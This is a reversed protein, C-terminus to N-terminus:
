SPLHVDWIWPSIFIFNFLMKVLLSGHFGLTYLCSWHGRAFTCSLVALPFSSLNHQIHILHHFQEWHVMVRTGLGWRVRFVQCADTKVSLLTIRSCFITNAHISTHIFHISVFCSIYKLHIFLSVVGSYNSDFTLGGGIHVHAVTSAKWQVIGELM